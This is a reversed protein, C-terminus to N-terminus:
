LWAMARGVTKAATWLDSVAHAALAGGTGIGSLPDFYYFTAVSAAGVIVPVAAAGLVATLPVAAEEVVGVDAFKPLEKLADRTALELGRGIESLSVKIVEEGTKTVAEDTAQRSLLESTQTWLNRQANLQGTVNGLSEQVADSQKIARKTLAEQSSPDLVLLSKLERAMAWAFWGNAMSSFVSEPNQNAQAAATDLYGPKVPPPLYAVRFGISNNATSADEIPNYTNDFTIGFESSNWAGGMPITELIYGDQLMPVWQCVDGGM